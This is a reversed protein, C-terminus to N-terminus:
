LLIQLVRVDHPQVGGADGVVLVVALLDRQHPHHLLVAVHAVEGARGLAAPEALLAADLRRGAHRHDDGRQRVEGAAHRVQVLPVDDVRVERAAVHQQRPRVRPRVAERGLDAVEAERAHRGVAGREARAREAGDGVHGGLQEQAVEQVGRRIHPGEADDRPLRVMSLLGVAAPVRRLDREGDHLVAGDRPGLIRRLLEDGEDLLLAQGEVLLSAQREGLDGRGHGLQLRGKRLDLARSAHLPWGTQRAAPAGTGFPQWM